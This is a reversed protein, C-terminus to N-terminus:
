IQMERWCLGPKIRNICNLLPHNPRLVSHMDLANTDRRDIEGIEDGYLKHEAGIRTEREKRM